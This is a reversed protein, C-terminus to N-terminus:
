SKKMLTNHRLNEVKPKSEHNCAVSKSECKLNYTQNIKKLECTLHRTKLKM